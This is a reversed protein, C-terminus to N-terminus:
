GSLLAVLGRVYAVYGVRGWARAGRFASSKALGTEGRLADIKIRSGGHGRGIGNELSLELHQKAILRAAHGRVHGIERNSVPVPSLYDAGVQAVGAM